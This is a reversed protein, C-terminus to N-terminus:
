GLPLPDTHKGGRSGGRPLKVSCDDSDDGMNAWVVVPQENRTRVTKARVNVQHHTVDEPRETKRPTKRRDGGSGEAGM